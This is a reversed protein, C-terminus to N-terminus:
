PSDHFDKQDAIGMEIVIIDLGITVSGVVKSGSQNPIPPTADLRSIGYNMKTIDEHVFGFAPSLNPREQCTPLDQNSAIM